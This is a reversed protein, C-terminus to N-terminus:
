PSGLLFDPPERTLQLELQLCCSTSNMVGTNARVGHVEIPQASEPSEGLWYIQSYPDGHCSLKLVMPNYCWSQVSTTFLFSQFSNNRLKWWQGLSTLLQVVDTVREGPRSLRHIVPQIKDSTKQTSTHFVKNGVYM